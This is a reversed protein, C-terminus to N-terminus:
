DESEEMKADANGSAKVFEHKRLAGVFFPRVYCWMQGEELRLDM